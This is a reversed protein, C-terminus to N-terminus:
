IRKTFLHLRYYAWCNYCYCIFRNIYEKINFFFINLERSLSWCQWAHRSGVFYVSFIWLATHTLQVLQNEMDTKWMYLSHFWYVKIWFIHINAVAFLMCANRSRKTHIFCEYKLYDNELGLRDSVMLKNIKQKNKNQKLYGCFKLTKM